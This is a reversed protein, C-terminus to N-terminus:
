RPKKQNYPTGKVRKFIGKDMPELMIRIFQTVIEYTKIFQQNQQYFEIDMFLTVQHLPNALKVITYLTIPRCNLIGEIEVTLTLLEEYAVTACFLLRRLTRKTSQILWEWFWGVM